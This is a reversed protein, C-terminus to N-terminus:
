EMMGLAPGSRDLDLSFADGTGVVVFRVGHSSPPLRQWQLPPQPPDKNARVATTFDATWVWLEGFRTTRMAPAGDNTLLSLHDAHACM